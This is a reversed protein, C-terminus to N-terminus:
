RLAPRRDLSFTLRSTVNGLCALTHLRGTAWSGVQSSLKVFQSTILSLLKRFCSRRERLACESRSLLGPTVVPPLRQGDLWLDADM